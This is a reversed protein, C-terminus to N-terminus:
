ANDKVEEAKEGARAPAETGTEEGERRAPSPQPSPAASCIGRLIQIDAEAAPIERTEDKKFNGLKPSSGSINFIVRKMPTEM